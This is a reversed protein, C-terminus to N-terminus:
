NGSFIKRIGEQVTTYPLPLTYVSEDVMQLSKDFQRQGTLLDIEAGNYKRVESAFDLISTQEPNVINILQHDSDKAILLGKVVDDIFTFHRKNRGESVLKVPQDHLLHWLLTGQRPNSGYVNHLRVGVAQPFYCRAYEEDFHKSIGYLSTTNMPNATSSSAYVLPVHAKRCADAVSIFALINDHIIKARNHNFVSTQAALHFVCEVDRLRPNSDFFEKVETGNLRDISLVQHGREILAAVLAKGIFGEGGTVIM